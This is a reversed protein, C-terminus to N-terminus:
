TSIFLKYWLWGVDAQNVEVSCRVM